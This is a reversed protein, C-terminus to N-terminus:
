GGPACFAVVATQLAALSAYGLATAARPMEGYQLILASVNDITCNPV